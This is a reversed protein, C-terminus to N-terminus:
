SHRGPLHLREELQQTVRLGPDPPAHDPEQPGECPVGQKRLYSARKKELRDERVM